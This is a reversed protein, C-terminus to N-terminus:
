IPHCALNNICSIKYSISPLHSLSVCFVCPISIFSTSSIIIIGFSIVHHSFFLPYYEGRKRVERVKDEVLDEGMPPSTVGIEVPVKTALEGREGPGQCCRVVDSRVKNWSPNVTRCSFVFQCRYTSIHRLEFGHVSVCCTGITRAAGGGGPAPAAEPPRRPPLQLLSSATPRSSWRVVVLLNPRCPRCSQTMEERKSSSRPHAASFLSRRKAPAFRHGGWIVLQYYYELSSYEVM